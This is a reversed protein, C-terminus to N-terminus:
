EGSQDINTLTKVIIECLGNQDFAQLIEHNRKSTAKRIAQCAKSTFKIEEMKDMINVLNYTGSVIM